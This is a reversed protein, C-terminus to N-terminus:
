RPRLRASAAHWPGGPPPITQLPRATERRRPWCRRSRSCSTAWCWRPAASLRAGDAETLPLVARQDAHGQRSLRPEAAAGHRRRRARGVARGPPRASSRPTRPGAAPPSPPRSAAPELAAHWAEDEDAFDPGLASWGPADISCPSTRDRSRSGARPGRAEYARVIRAVLPHRVVDRDTFRVVGIGEVGDCSRWRTSWAPNTAPACTSRASTAPSWWARARAWAPDPVDEDADAHHEAGRRPHRLCPGPHPRAHLRAARGRDRRDDMRKAVQEAPLM